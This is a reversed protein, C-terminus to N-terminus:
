HFRASLAVGPVPAHAAARREFRRAGRHPRSYYESLLGDPDRLDFSRKSADNVLLETPIGRSELAKEAAKVADVSDLEFSVHHYGDGESDQKECIVLHYPYHSLRGRLYAVGRAM